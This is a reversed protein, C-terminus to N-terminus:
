KAQTTTRGSRAIDVCFLLRRQALARRVRFRSTAGGWRLLAPVSVEDSVASGEEVSSGGKLDDDAAPPESPPDERSLEVTAGCECVTAGDPKCELIKACKPCPIEKSEMFVTAFRRCPPHM